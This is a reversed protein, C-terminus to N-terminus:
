KCIELKDGNSFEISFFNIDFEEDHVLAELMQVEKEKLRMKLFTENSSLSADALLEQFPTFEGFHNPYIGKKECVACVVIIINGM